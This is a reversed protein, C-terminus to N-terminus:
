WTSPDLLRFGEPRPVPPMGLVECAERSANGATVMMGWFTEGEPAGDLAVRIDYDDEGDLEGFGPVYTAAVETGDDNQIFLRRGERRWTGMATCVVHGIPRDWDEGYALADYERFPYSNEYDAHIGHTAYMRGDPYLFMNTGGWNAEFSGDELTRGWYTTGPINAERSEFGRNYYDIVPLTEPFQQFTAEIDWTGLRELYAFTANAGVIRLGEPAAEIDFTGAKDEFFIKLKSGDIRFQGQSHDSRDTYGAQPADTDIDRRDPNTEFWFSGDAQFEITEFDFSPVGVGDRKETLDLEARELLWTSRCGPHACVVWLGAINEATPITDESWEDGGCAVLSSLVLLAAINRMGCSM